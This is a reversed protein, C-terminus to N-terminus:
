WTDTQRWGARLQRSLEQRIDKYDDDDAHNYNEEPDTGHDYLEVGYLVDWDPHYHPADLFRAWETYRYQDTRLSYGMVSAKHPGNRPFQSFAVNKWPRSDSHGPLLPMMSTGETCLTVTSSDQPCLPLPPLGAAEVLTPFLDVFETISEAVVGQDTVGPIHLMMPAQTALEFNTKKRWEGHEGLQWGHDSCFSVITNDALGLSRLQRLVQGILSDTYTIASYYARRLELVKLDPLTTNINGSINFKKLDPYDGLDKFSYWAVEPMNVPAYPNDPLRIDGAPYYDLFDAPFIFPMHPKHFGVALFFPQSTNNALTHLTQVAHDAIQVDPLPQNQAIDKDVAKWSGHQKAMWYKENPAHFYPMSWSVPDDDASAKHGSHFIKGIGVSVYGNEKFYQPITTFNGGVERFYQFGHYVHTTDPRRGPLLSSRSPNCVAQQVYARKLLLSRSALADLNPTHMVPHVPSPFDRGYYSGLQNRMDDAMLFLINPKSMSLPPAAQM